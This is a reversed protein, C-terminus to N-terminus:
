WPGYGGPRCCAKSLACTNLTCSADPMPPVAPVHTCSAHAYLQFTHVGHSYLECTRGVSHSPGQWYTIYNFPGDLLPAAEFGRIVYDLDSLGDRPPAPPCGLYKSGNERNGGTKKGVVDTDDADDDDDAAAAAASSAAASVATSAADNDDDDDDDAAADAAAAAAAAASQRTGVPAKNRLRGMPAQKAAEVFGEKKASVAAVAALAAALTTVLALLRMTTSSARAEHCAGTNREDAADAADDQTVNVAKSWDFPLSIFRPEVDPSDTNRNQSLLCSASFGEWTWETNRFYRWVCM